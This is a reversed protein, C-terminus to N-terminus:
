IGGLFVVWLRGDTASRYVVRDGMPSAAWDNSAIGGPFATGDILARSEGSALDLELLSLFAKHEGYLLDAM